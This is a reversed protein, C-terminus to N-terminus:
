SFKKLDGRTDIDSLIGESDTGIYSINEQYKTMIEKLGRKEESITMIERFLTSKIM